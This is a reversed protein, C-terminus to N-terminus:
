PLEERKPLQAGRRSCTIAAAQSAFDLMSELAARELAAPADRELADHEALWALLACHFSDGAGVTDIVSVQRGHSSAQATSSWASAGSSGRTVVILGAGQLRWQEALVPLAVGPYLLGADEESMKLLQARPVMWRLVERWRELSPEVNVRVNPDYAILRRRHEREILTRLTTAVPEVVMSYSGFHFVRAGAPLAALAATGLDRDAGHEGHFTYSPVGRADLGVMTLTTPDDSRRVSDIQVGEDRLLALLREGFVDRSLAGFYSVPQGLRALGLAVNFPSGGARGDLMLGGATPAGAFVDFLAEGCVVFM